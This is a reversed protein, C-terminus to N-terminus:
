KSAKKLKELQEKAIDNLRDIEDTTFKSIQDTADKIMKNLKDRTASGSETAFLFGAGVGALIGLVTASIILGTHDKKKKPPEAIGLRHKVITNFNSILENVLQNKDTLNKM